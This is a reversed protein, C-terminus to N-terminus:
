GHFNCPCDRVDSTSHLRDIFNVYQFAHGYVEHATTSSYGWIDETRDTPLYIHVQKSYQGYNNPTYFGALNMIGSTYKNYYDGPVEETLSRYAVMQEYQGEHWMVLTWGCDMEGVSTILICLEQTHLDIREGYSDYAGIACIIGFLLWFVKFIM